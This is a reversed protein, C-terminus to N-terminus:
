DNVNKDEGKGDEIAFNYGKSLKEKEEETIEILESYKIEFDEMNGEKHFNKDNEKKLTYFFVLGLFKTM